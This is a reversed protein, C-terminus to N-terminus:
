RVKVKKVKSYSGYIKTKGVQKYARVKYYYNKRSKLKKFTRSTTKNKRILATKKGKKFKKNQAIVVQYGTAKTDRKWIVKLTRKKTSKAKKLTAKKPKVIITIKKTAANYQSTAAATITITAKGPGKLTVKGSSNVTAVKTNSSKYSLKTKAKAGLNFAKNGYTKTFSQATITQSAKVVPMTPKSSQPEEVEGGVNGNSDVTGAHKWFNSTLDLYMAPRVMKEPGNLLNSWMSVAGYATMYAGSAAVDGPSRLWWWNAEGEAAYSTGAAYATNLAEGTKNGFDDLTGVFGYEPNTAEDISLLFLKDKTDNGGETKYEPNDKNEITKELIAAQEDSTFANDIFNNSTYDINDRNSSSGYGNLWSRLTCTEWTVKVDFLDNETDTENYPIAGDLLKDSVLFAETQDANVSLVRWKIPDTRFAGKGDYGQLYHGLYVCDWTVTGDAKVQPNQLTKSETPEMPMESAPHGKSQVRDATEWYDSKLDLWLAPRVADCSNSYNDEVYAGSIVIEGSMGNSQSVYAAGSYSDEYRSGDGPSRLWFAWDPYDESVYKAGTVERTNSSGYAALFGYNPNMIEEISLLVLQDETDKGGETGYVPNDENKIEKKLIADQEEQSFAKDMFNEATYDKGAKNSASGYGNLWSRMTSTEWTVDEDTENFIVGKELVKDALLFAEGNKVQLVRWTIPEVKFYSGTGTDEDTQYVFETGNEDEYTVNEKPKSPVSVPHYEGQPYHGFTVCDWTITGSGDAAWQPNSLTTADSAASAEQVNMPMVLTALMLLCIALSILRNRRKQQEM